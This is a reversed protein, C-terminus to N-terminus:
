ILSTFIYKFDSLDLKIKVVDMGEYIIRKRNSISLIPPPYFGEKMAKYYKDSSFDKTNDLEVFYDYEINNKKIIFYADPRISFNESITVKYERTFDILEFNLEKSLENLQVYLESILLMSKLQQTPKRKYYYIIEKGFGQRFSKIKKHNVLQKCRRCQNSKHYYFLREIQSSSMVKLKEITKIIELDKKTLSIAM